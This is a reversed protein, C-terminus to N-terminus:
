PLQPSNLKTRPIHLRVSEVAGFAAGSLELRLHAVDPSPAEFLLLNDASKGPFLAKRSPRGPPLWNPEFTAMSLRKGESDTLRPAEGQSGAGWGQFDIKRTAGENTVKVWVQLHKTQTWRKRNDPGTLQVPGVTVSPVSVRVDDLQWSERGVDVWEAPASVGTGHGVAQVGRPGESPRPWWPGLGLWGPLAVVVALILAAFVAALAPLRKQQALRLAYLALSLGVVALVAAVIRGFPLQSAILSVGGFIVAALGLVVPSREDEEDEPPTSTQPPALSLARPLAPLPTPSPDAAPRLPLTDDAGLAPEEVAAGSDQCPAEAPTSSDASAQAYRAADQKQQAEGSLTFWNSCYPCYVSRGVARRPARVTCKGCCPCVSIIPM